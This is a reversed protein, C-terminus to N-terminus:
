PNEHDFPITRTRMSSPEFSSAVSTEMSNLDLQMVSYDSRFTYFIQERSSDFAMLPYKQLPDLENLTPSFEGLLTLSSDALNLLGVPRAEDFRLSNIKEPEKMSHVLNGNWYFAYIGRIWMGSNGYGSLEDIVKDEHVTVLKDLAIDYVLIHEDDKIALVLPQTFESPGAGQGGIYRFEGSNLNISYPLDKRIDVGYAMGNESDVRLGEWILEPQDPDTTLEVSGTKAWSVIVREDVTHHTCSFILCALLVGSIKNKLTLNMSPQRDSNKIKKRILHCQALFVVMAQM